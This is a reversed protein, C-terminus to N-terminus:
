KVRILTSSVEPFGSTTTYLTDNKISIFISGAQNTDDAGDAWVVYTTVIREEKWQINKKKWSYHHTYTNGLEDNYITQDNSREIFCDIPYTCGIFGGCTQYIKWKGQVAKQIVPLPQAYLDEINSFDIKSMDIDNKECSFSGALILVIVALKLIKIKM